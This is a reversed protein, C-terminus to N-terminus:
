VAMLAKRILIKGPKRRTFFILNDRKLEGLVRAVTQRSTDTLCAIDRHSMGHNILIEELGIKVGKRIGTKKIFDVIRTKAKKFVFSEMREELSQLRGMIIAMIESAFKENNMVIEKFTDVPIMIVTSERSAKAFEKRKEQGTFINEGFISKGYIINKILTKGTKSDLGLQISGRDVFYVYDVADGYEYLLANKPIRKMIAVSSMLSYESPSLTKLIEYEQLMLYVASNIM